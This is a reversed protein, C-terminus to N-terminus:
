EGEESKDRREDESEEQYDEEYVRKIFKNTGPFKVMIRQNASGRFKAKPLDSNFKDDVIVDVHRTIFKPISEFKYGTYLWVDLHKFDEVRRFRELFEQTSNLQFLPDGGSLTIGQIWDKYERIKAIVEHIEYEKGYAYDQMAPNHCGPCNHICGSMFIVFRVGDGDSLSQEEFGGIRMTM